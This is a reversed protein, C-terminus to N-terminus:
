FLEGEVIASTRQKGDMLVTIPRKFRVHKFFGTENITKQKNIIDWNIYDTLSSDLVSFYGVNMSTVNHFFHSGLSSDLPFNALSIEVIVQANSIQSWVVPVGLFRDRTGWRGPGILIYKRNERVMKNNLLEIEKAMEVTKLKDFKDVDVFIVDTIDEIKGNGVSATTFLITKERDLQDTEIHFNMQHGVLPKIQLLYFSPLNNLTKNLDVAFEMEIPSGLAESFTNLMIDITEALPTYNYKLINSFNIIRPGPKEIGTEIRDNNRDYVSALHKLTGHKEADYIDLVALSAMEGEGFYDIHEKSLDLAFFKVQSSNLLDKISYTEINPYKPSFRYAKWGEVVYFGLGLAAVAYGEEPKMQGVPYYNYSCAIGSIHPYYYNGYASGVLEQLVVAMREDEAKHNIAQFYNMANDSYISAYVYKIAEM